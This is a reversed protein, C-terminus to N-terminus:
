AFENSGPDFLSSTKYSEVRRNRKSLRKTLASAANEVGMTM